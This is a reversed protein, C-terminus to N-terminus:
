VVWWPRQHQEGYHERRRSRRLLRERGLWIETSVTVSNAPAGSAPRHLLSAPLASAKDADDLFENIVNSVNGHNGQLANRIMAQDAFGTVMVVMDVDEASVNDAM